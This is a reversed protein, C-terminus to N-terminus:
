EGAKELKATATLSPSARCTYNGFIEKQTLNTFALEWEVVTDKTGAVWKHTVAIGKDTSNDVQAGNHSFWPNPSTTCDQVIACTIKVSDDAGHVTVNRPPHIISWSVAHWLYKSFFLVIMAYVNMLEFVVFIEVCNNINISM